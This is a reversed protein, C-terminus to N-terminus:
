LWLTGKLVLHGLDQVLKTTYRKKQIRAELYANGVDAQYAQLGNLEPYTQYKQSISSWLVCKGWSQRDPTWRGRIM